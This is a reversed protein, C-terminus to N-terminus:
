LGKLVAEKAEDKSLPLIELKERGEWHKASELVQRLYGAIVQLYAEKRVLEVISFCRFKRGHILDRVYIHERLENYYVVTLGATGLIAMWAGFRWSVALALVVWIVIGILAATRFSKRLTEMPDHAVLLADEFAYRQVLAKEEQDLEAKMWMTFMVGRGLRLPVLTFTAPSQKRECLLHM